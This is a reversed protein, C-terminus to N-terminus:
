FSVARASRAPADADELPSEATNVSMRNLLNVRVLRPAEVLVAVTADM